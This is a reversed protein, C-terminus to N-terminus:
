DNDANHEPIPALQRQLTPARGRQNPNRKAKEDLAAIGPPSQNNLKCLGFSEVDQERGIEKAPRNRAAQREIKRTNREQDDYEAQVDTWAAASDQGDACRKDVEAQMETYRLGRTEGPTLPTQEPQINSNKLMGWNGERGEKMHRWIQNPGDKYQVKRHTTCQDSDVTFQNYCRRWQGDSGQVWELCIAFVFNEFDKRKKGHRGPVHHGLTFSKNLAPNMTNVDFNDWGPILEAFPFKAPYIPEDDAHQGENAILINAPKTTRKMLSQDPHCTGKSAPSKNKAM